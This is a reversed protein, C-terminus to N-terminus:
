PTAQLSGTSCTKALMSQVGLFALFSSVTCFFTNDCEKVFTCSPNSNWGPLIPNYFTKNASAVEQSQGQGALTLVSLGIISFLRVCM